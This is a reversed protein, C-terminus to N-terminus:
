KKENKYFDFPTVHLIYNCPTVHLIYNLIYNCPTVHVYIVEYVGFKKM